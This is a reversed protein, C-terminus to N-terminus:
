ITGPWLRVKFPEAAGNQARRINYPHNCYGVWEAAEQSGDFIGRLRAKLTDIELATEISKEGIDILADVAQQGMQIFATTLSSVIGAIAGIQVGSLNASKQVSDFAKAGDSAIKDINKDIRQLAALYQKDDLTVQHQITAM